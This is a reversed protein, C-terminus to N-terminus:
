FIFNNFHKIRKMFGAETESLRIERFLLNYFNAGMFDHLRNTMTRKSTAQAVIHEDYDQKLFELAKKNLM